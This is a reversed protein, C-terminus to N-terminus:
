PDFRQASRHQHPHRPRRPPPVASIPPPTLAPREGVGLAKVNVASRGDVGIGNSGAVAARDNEIRLIRGARASSEGGTASKMGAVATKDLSRATPKGDPEGLVAARAARCPPWHSISGSLRSTIAPGETSTLPGGTKVRRAGGAEKRHRVQQRCERGVADDRQLGVPVTPAPVPSMRKWVISSKPEM